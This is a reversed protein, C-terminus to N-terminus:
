EPNIIGKIAIVHMRNKQVLKGGNVGMRVMTVNIGYIAATLIGKILLKWNLEEM